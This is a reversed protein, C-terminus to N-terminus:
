RVLLRRTPGPVGDTVLTCFYLGPAWGRLDLEQSTATPSLSQQRLMRGDTGRSIFLVAQKVAAPVYYDFTTRDTAPNPTNQALQATTPGAGTQRASRQQIGTNFYGEDHCVPDIGSDHGSNVYNVNAGLLASYQTSYNNYSRYRLVFSGNANNVANFGTIGTGADDFLNKLTPDGNINPNALTVYATSENYIGYSVGNRVSASVGRAFTNCSVYATGTPATPAPNVVPVVDYGKECETFANGRVETNTNGDRLSHAIGVALGSFTNDLVQNLKQSAIGIQRPRYNAYNFDPCVSTNPQKFVTGDTVTTPVFLPSLGM